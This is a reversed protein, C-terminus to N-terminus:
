SPDQELNQGKSVWETGVKVRPKLLSGIFKEYDSQFLQCAM